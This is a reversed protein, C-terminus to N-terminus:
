RGNLGFNSSSHQLRARYAIRIRGVPFIFVEGSIQLATRPPPRLLVLHASRINRAAASTNACGALCAYEGQIMFAALDGGKLEANAAIIALQLLEQV